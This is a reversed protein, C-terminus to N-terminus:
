LLKSKVTDISCGPLCAPKISLLQFPYFIFSVSRPHGSRTWLAIEFHFQELTKRKAVTRWRELRRFIGAREPGAEYVLSLLEGGCTPKRIAADLSANNNPTAGFHRAEKDGSAYAICSDAKHVDREIYRLREM